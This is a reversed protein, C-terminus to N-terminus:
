WDMGQMYEYEMYKVINQNIIIIFNDVNSIQYKLAM